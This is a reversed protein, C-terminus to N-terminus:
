FRCDGPPDCSGTHSHRRVQRIQMTTEAPSPNREWLARWQLPVSHFSGFQPLDRAVGLPGGAIMSDISRLMRSIASSSVWPLDGDLVAANGLRPQDVNFTLPGM